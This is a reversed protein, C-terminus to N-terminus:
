VIRQEDGDQKPLFEGSEIMEATFRDYGFLRMLADVLAEGKLEDREYAARLEDLTMQDAM